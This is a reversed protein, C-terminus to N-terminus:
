VPTWLKALAVENRVLQALMLSDKAPQPEQYEQEESFDEEYDEQYQDTFEVAIDKASVTLNSRNILRYLVTM